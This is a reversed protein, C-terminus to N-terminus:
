LIEFVWHWSRRIPKWLWNFSSWVFLQENFSTHLSPQANWCRHPPTESEM